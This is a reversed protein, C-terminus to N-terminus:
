RLKLMARRAQYRTYRDEADLMPALADLAQISGINGLAWIVSYPKAETALLELLPGVAREDAIRGLADVAALQVDHDADKLAAALAPVEKETGVYNLSTAATLRIEKSSDQLLPTLAEAVRPDDVRRALKASELRVMPNPSQLNEVTQEVESDCGLLPIGLVCALLMVLACRM